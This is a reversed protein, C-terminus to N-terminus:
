LCFPNPPGSCGNMQMGVVQQGTPTFGEFFAQGQPQAYGMAQCNNYMDSPPPGPLPLSGDPQQQQQQQVFFQQMSAQQMSAQDTGPAQGQFPWAPMAPMAQAHMPSMVVQGQQQQEGYPLQPIPSGIPSSHFAGSVPTTGRCSGGMSSLPTDSGGMGPLPPPMGRMADFPLFLGQQSQMPSGTPTSAGSPLHESFSDFGGYSSQTESWQSWCSDSRQHGGFSHFPSGHPTSGSDRGGPSRQGRRGAGKGRDGGVPREISHHAYLQAVAEMADEEYGARQYLRALISHTITSPRL